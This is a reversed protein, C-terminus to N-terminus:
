CWMILREHPLDNKASLLYWKAQRIHAKCWEYGDPLRVERFEEKEPDLELSVPTACDELFAECFIRNSSKRINKLQIM